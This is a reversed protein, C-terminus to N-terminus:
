NACAKAAADLAAFDAVATGGMNELFSARNSLALEKFKAKAEDSLETLQLGGEVAKGVLHAEMGAVVKRFPPFMEDSTDQIIKRQEDTFGNWIKASFGVVGSSAVAGPNTAYGTLQPIGILISYIASAVSGDVIGTKLGPILDTAGLTTVSAGTEQMFREYSPANPVSMKKGALDAPDTIPSKTWIHEHGIDLRGVIIYGAEALRPGFIEKFAGDEVCHRAADNEFLYPELMLSVEPAVTSLANTSVGAGDLRGRQAQRLTETQGGLAGGFFIKVEIEGGTREAVAESWAQMVKGYPSGEPVVTAMRYEKAVAATALTALGCIAAAKLTLKSINM